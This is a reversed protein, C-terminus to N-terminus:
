ALEGDPYEWQEESHAYNPPAVRRISGHGPPTWRGTRKCEAFMALKRDIYRRALDLFDDDLEYCECHYDPEKCGVIFIFRKVDVTECAAAGMVYWAAQIHYGLNLAQRSFSAADGAVTSKIDGAWALDLLDPQCRLDLGYPGRWRITPKVWRATRIMAAAQNCRQVGEAMAELKPVVQPMILLDGAHAAKFADWAKGRRQGIAGPKKMKTLASTPVVTVPPRYQANASTGALCWAEFVTGHDFCDKQPQPFKGAVHRGFYLGPSRCFDKFQSQSLEPLAHYAADSFWEITAPSSM